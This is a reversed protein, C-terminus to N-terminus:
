VSRSPNSTRRSDTVTDKALGPLGEAVNNGESVASPGDDKGRSPPGGDGVPRLKGRRRM